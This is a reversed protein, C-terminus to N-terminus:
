VCASTREAIRLVASRSRPNGAIETASARIIRGTKRLMPPNTVAECGMLGRSGPKSQDRIFRKVIRDELSHFSIIAMRGGTRLAEVIQPLCQQLEDLEQNIVLRIALFTRTAPHKNRERRPVAQEVLNALQLTTIIPQSARTSIIAHAIRGAFREEGLERLVTKLESESVQALWDAASVGQTQDMRLDLPGDRMFSFGRRAEDLQPSSVGLDMLIGDVQGIWDRQRIFRELKAFSGHEIEFRPDKLLQACHDSALAATDKDIALLKGTNGMRELIAKSHGGRGFTCDVYIGGPRIALADISESLLVPAHHTPTQEVDM